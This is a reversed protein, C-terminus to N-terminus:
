GWSVTFDLIHCIIVAILLVAKPLGGIQSPDSIGGISAFAKGGCDNYDDNCGCWRLTIKRGWKEVLKITTTFLMNVTSSDPM